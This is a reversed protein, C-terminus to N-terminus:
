AHSDLPLTFRIVTGRGVESTATIAGGHLTVLQKAIALGLGAGRSDPAKYFRDFVHPLAAAPIGRGTDSVTIALAGDERAVDVRVRGGSPTYRIANGVLNALIERVRVPDADVVPLDPPAATDVSVGAEASRAAFANMTDRVLAALDTPERHLTLAGAEALSLTRLDDILRALITTEDLIARLHAEDSPHVGDILAELNGQVVALPTRLEHSVDALLRRRQEESAALRESMTNFARALGRVERPGREAVRTSLDGEAVREAAGILDALPAAYRRLGRGALAFMAAGAVLVVGVLWMGAPGALEMARVAFAVALAFFLMFFLLGGLAFLAVRRMFRGRM